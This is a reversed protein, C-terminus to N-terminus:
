MLEFVDRCYRLRGRGAFDLVLPMGPRPPWLDLVLLISELTLLLDAPAVAELSLSGVLIPDPRELGTVTLWVSLSFSLIATESESLRDKDPEGLDLGVEALAQPVCPSLCGPDLYGSMADGVNRLNNPALAPPLAVGAGPASPAFAGETTGPGPAAKARCPLRSDGDDPVPLAPLAPPGLPPLLGRKLLGASRAASTSPRLAESADLGADPPGGHAAM